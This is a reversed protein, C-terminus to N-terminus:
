GDEADEDDPLAHIGPDAPATVDAAATAYGLDVALKRADERQQFAHVDQPDYLKRIKRWVSAITPIQLARQM